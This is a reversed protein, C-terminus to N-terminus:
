YPGCGSENWGMVKEIPGNFSHVEWYHYGTNFDEYQYFYVREGKFPIYEKGDRSYYFDGTKPDIFIDIINGMCPDELFVWPYILEYGGTGGGGGTSYGYFESMADPTGKGAASSLNRLSLNSLQQGLEQGIQSLSIQGSSPLAM